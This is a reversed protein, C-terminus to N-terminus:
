KSHGGVCILFRFGDIFRQGTPPIAAFNGRTRIGVQFPPRQDRPCPVIEAVRNGDIRVQLEHGTVLRGENVQAAPASLMLNKLWNEM